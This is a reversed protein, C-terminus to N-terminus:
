VPADLAELLRQAPDVAAVLRRQREHMREEWVLRALVQGVPVRVLGAGVDLRREVTGIRESVCCDSCRVSRCIINV